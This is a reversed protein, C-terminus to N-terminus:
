PRSTSWKQMLDLNSFAGSTLFAMFIAYWMALEAAVTKGSGTPAGLLVNQDTHYMVHFVQTQLPNFYNFKSSYITELVDNQLASVSLPRLNLLRTEPTNMDPLILHQFSVPVCNDVGLWRDSVARVFIQAPLPETLPITCNVEIPDAMKKKTLIVYQSYLIRVSNSDEVWIWFSEITEHIRDYWTFRPTILINVRLVKRTLPATQVEMTVQPLNDLARAIREGMRHHHVLEGLENNNMSKMEELNAYAGLHGIKFAIDRPLGLRPDALPHNEPDLQRELAIRVRLVTLATPSFERSLAIHFLAAALRQANEAVFRTDMALGTDNIHLNQFHAQMLLNVKGPTTATGGTVPYPFRESFEM